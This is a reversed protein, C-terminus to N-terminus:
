NNNGKSIVKEEVSYKGTRIIVSYWQVFLIVLKHKEIVYSIDWIQTKFL